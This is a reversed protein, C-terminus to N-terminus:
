RSHRSDWAVCDRYTGQYITDEMELTYGNARADAARQRAVQDCHANVPAGSTESSSTEPAATQGAGNSDVGPVWGETDCGALLVAAAVFVISKL